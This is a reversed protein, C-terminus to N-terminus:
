EGFDFQEFRATAASLGRVYGILEDFDAPQLMSVETHQAFFMSISSSMATYRQWIAFLTDHNEHDEATVYALSFLKTNNWRYQDNRIWEYQGSRFTESTDTKVKELEGAIDNLLDSSFVATQGYVQKGHLLAHHGRQERIFLFTLIGLSVALLVIVLKAPKNM